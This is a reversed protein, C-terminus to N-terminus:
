RVKGEWSLGKQGLANANRAECEAYETSLTQELTSGINHVTGFVTYTPSPKILCNTMWLTVCYKLRWYIQCVIVM